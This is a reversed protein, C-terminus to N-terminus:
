RASAPVARLDSRGRRRNRCGASGHLPRDPVQPPYRTRGDAPGSAAVAPSRCETASRVQVVRRDGSDPPRRDATRRGGHDAPLRQRRRGAATKWGDPGAKGRGVRRTPMRGQLGGLVMHRVAAGVTVNESATRCSSSTTGTFATDVHTSGEPTVAPRYTARSRRELARGFPVVMRKVESCRRSSPTTSRSNVRPLIGPMRHVGAGANVRAGAGRDAGSGSIRSPWGPPSRVMYGRRTARARCDAASPKAVVVM